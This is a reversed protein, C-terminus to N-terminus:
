RIKDGNALQIDKKDYVVVLEHIKDPHWNIRKNDGIRILDISNNKLGQGELSKGSASQQHNIEAISFLDAAKIRM